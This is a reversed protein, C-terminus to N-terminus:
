LKELTKFNYWDNDSWNSIHKHWLYHSLDKRLIDLIQFYSLSCQMINKPKEKEKLEKQKERWERNKALAKERNREYWTRKQEKAKARNNNYWRRQNERNNSTQEM